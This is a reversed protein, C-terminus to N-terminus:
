KFGSLQKLSLYPWSQYWGAGVYSLAKSNARVKAIEPFLHFILSLLSLHFKEVEATQSCVYFGLDRNQLM